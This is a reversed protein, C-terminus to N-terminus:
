IVVTVIQSQGCYSSARFSFSPSTGLYAQAVMSVSHVGLAGATALQVFATWAVTNNQRVFLQISPNSPVFTGASLTIDFHYEIGLATPTQGTNVVSIVPTVCVCDDYDSLGDFCALTTGDCCLATVTVYPPTSGPAGDAMPIEFATPYISAVTITTPSANNFQTYTVEYGCAPNGATLSSISLIAQGSCDAVTNVIVEAPCACPEPVDEPVTFKTRKVDCADAIGSKYYEVTMTYNGAPLVVSHQNNDTVTTPTGVITNGPQVRFTFVFSDGASLVPEDAQFYITPM